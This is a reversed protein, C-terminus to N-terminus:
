HKNQIVGLNSEWVIEGICLKYQLKITLEPCALESVIASNEFYADYGFSNDKYFLGILFIVSFNGWLILLSNLLYTRLICIEVLSIHCSFWVSKFAFAVISKKLCVLITEGATLKLLKHLTAKTKLQSMTKVLYLQSRYHLNLFAKRTVALTLSYVFM